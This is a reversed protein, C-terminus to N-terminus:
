KDNGHVAMVLLDSRFMFTRQLVKNDNGRLRSDLFLVSSAQKRLCSPHSLFGDKIKDGKKRPTASLTVSLMLLDWRGGSKRDM